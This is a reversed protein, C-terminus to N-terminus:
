SDDTTERSVKTVVTDKETTSNRPNSEPAGESPVKAFKALFPENASM